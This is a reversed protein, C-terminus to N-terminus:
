SSKKLIITIWNKENDLSVRKSYVPISNLISANNIVGDINSIHLQNKELSLNWQHM